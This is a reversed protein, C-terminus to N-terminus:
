GGTPALRYVGAVVILGGSEVLGGLLEALEGVSREYPPSQVFIGLLKHIRELPLGGSFNALAGKVYNVLVATRAAYATAAAAAAAAESAEGGEEEEEVPGAGAGDGSAVADHHHQNDDGGDPALGVIGAPSIALVRAGTWPALAHRLAPAGVGLAAALEGLPWSRRTEEADATAATVVASAAPGVPGDDDFRRIAAASLLSVDAVVVRRGGPLEVRVRAVGADPHWRLIRGGHGASWGAAWAAAAADLGAWALCSLDDVGDAGADGAVSGAALDPWATASRVLPDLRPGRPHIAPGHPPAATAAATTAATAWERSARADALMVRAAAVAPAGWRAALAALRAAEVDLAPALTDTLRVALAATYEHLLAEPPLAVTTLTSLADAGWPDPARATADTTAAAAATTTTTAAAANGAPPAGAADGAPDSASAAMARRRRRRRGGGGPCGGGAAAAGRPPRRRPVWATYAPLQADDLDSGDSPSPTSDDEAEGDPGTFAADAATPPPVVASSRRRPRGARIGQGGGEGVVRGGEVHHGHLAAYLGGGAREDVMAAVVARACDPRRGLYAGVATLLSRRLGGGVGGGVGWRGVAATAWGVRVALAVLAATPTGPHLHGTSVAAATAAVLDAGGDTVAAATVLDRWAGSRAPFAAVLGGAAPTLTAVVAVAAARAARATWAEALAARTPLPPAGALRPPVSTLLASLAPAVTATHWAWLLPLVRRCGDGDDVAGRSTTRNPRGGGAAAADGEALLGDVATSIVARVFGDVAADLASVLGLDLAMAALRAARTAALAAM